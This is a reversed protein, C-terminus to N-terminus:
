HVCMIVIVCRDVLHSGIFGAGGTVVIRKQRTDPLANVISRNLRGHPLFNPPVDLEEYKHYQQQTRLLQANIADLSSSSSSSSSRMNSGGYRVVKNDTPLHSQIMGPSAAAPATNGGSAIAATHTNVLLIHTDGDIAGAHVSRAFHMNYKVVDNVIKHVTQKVVDLANIETTEPFHMFMHNGLYMEIGLFVCLLAALAYITVKRNSFLSNHSSVSSHSSSTGTSHMPSTNNHQSRSRSHSTPSSM